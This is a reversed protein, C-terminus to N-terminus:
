AEMPETRVDVRVTFSALDAQGDRDVATIVGSAQRCRFEGTAGSLLMGAAYRAAQLAQSRQGAWVTVRVTARTAVPWQETAVGDCAVVAFPGDAPTWEGPLVVGASLLASAYTNLFSVVAQEVDAQVVAVKM